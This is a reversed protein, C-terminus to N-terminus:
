SVCCPKNEVLVTETNLLWVEYAQFLIWMVVYSYLIFVEIVSSVLYPLTKNVKMKENNEKIKENQAQKM